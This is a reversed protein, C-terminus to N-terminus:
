CRGDGLCQHPRGRASPERAQLTALWWDGNHKAVVGPHWFDSFSGFTQKAFQSTPNPKQWLYLFGFPVQSHVGPTTARELSDDASPPRSCCITRAPVAPNTPSNLCSRASEPSGCTHAALSLGFRIWGDSAFCTESLLFPCTSTALIRSPTTVDRCNPCDLGDCALFLLPSQKAPLHIRYRTCTPDGHKLACAM